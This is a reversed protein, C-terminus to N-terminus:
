LVVTAPGGEIPVGAPQEQGYGTMGVVVKPAFALLPSCFLQEVEFDDVDGHSEVAVDLHLVDVAHVHAPHGM